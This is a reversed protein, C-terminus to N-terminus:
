FDVYETRRPEDAQEQADYRALDDLMRSAERRLDRMEEDPLRVIPGAALKAALEYSLYLGWNIRGPAPKEHSGTTVDEPFSQALLEVTGAEFPTPWVLMRPHPLRDIYVAEPDGATASPDRAEWQWRRWVELPRKHGHATILNATVHFQIGADPMDAGAADHLDYADQGAEISLSLTRPVLWFWRQLSAVHLVIDDLWQVARDLLMPDAATESVPFAGIVQLAKEAISRVSKAERPSPM